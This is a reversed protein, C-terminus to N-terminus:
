KIIQYIAFLEYEARRKFIATVFDPDSWIRYSIDRVKTM